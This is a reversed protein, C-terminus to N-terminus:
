IAGFGGEPRSQTTYPFSLQYRYFKRKSITLFDGIKKFGCDCLAVMLCYLPRSTCAERSLLPAGPRCIDDTARSGKEEMFYGLLRALLAATPNVM